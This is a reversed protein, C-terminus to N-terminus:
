RVCSASADVIAEASKARQKLTIVCAGSASATAATCNLANVPQASMGGADAGVMPASPSSCAAVAASSLSLAASRGMITYLEKSCCRFTRRMM